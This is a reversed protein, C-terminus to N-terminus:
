TKTEARSLKEEQTEASHIATGRFHLKKKQNESKERTAVKTFMSRELLMRNLGSCAFLTQCAFAFASLTPSVQDGIAAILTMNRRHATKPVTHRGMNASISIPIVMIAQKRGLEYAPHKRESRHCRKSICSSHRVHEKSLTIMEVEVDYLQAHM